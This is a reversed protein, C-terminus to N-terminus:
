VLNSNRLKELTSFACILIPVSTHLAGCEQINNGQRDRTVLPAPPTRGEPRSSSTRNRSNQSNMGDETHMQQNEQSHVDNWGSFIDTWLGRGKGRGKGTETGTQWRHREKWDRMRLSKVGNKNHEIYWGGSDFEDNRPQFYWLSSPPLWARTCMYELFGRKSYIWINHVGPMFNSHYDTVHNYYHM